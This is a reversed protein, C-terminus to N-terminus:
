AESSPRLLRSTSKVSPLTRTRTGEGVVEVDDGIRGIGPIREGSLQTPIVTVLQDGVLEPREYGALTASYAWQGMINAFAATDVYGAAEVFRARDTPSGFHDHVLEAGDEADRRHM